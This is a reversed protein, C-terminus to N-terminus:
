IKGRILSKTKAIAVQEKVLLRETTNDARNKYGQWEREEKFEAMKDPNMKKFLKDYYTPVRSEQGNIVVYDNQYVDNKYFKLWDAGIGPRNSMKNFEPILHYEGENDIRKYWEKAEDGTRKSMCYRAIYAASEFTAAATSSYGYPWLKELQQSTYVREGSGTTKFYTKDEWEWNFLIAHYHPRWNISGYEGGMYFRIIRNDKKAAHFRLRKMFDQFHKYTLQGRNPINEDNYTLTIFCNQKYLSSEHVCRMAWRRSRELRCGYCQGCALEISKTIEGHAKRQDFVVSGSATKYAQLPHYCPM